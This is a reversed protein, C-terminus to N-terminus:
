SNERKLITLDFDSAQYQARFAIFRGNRRKPKGYLLPEGTGLDLVQGGEAELIAQGAATDWESTGVFRPYVDILGTALRGM